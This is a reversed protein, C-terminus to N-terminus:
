NLLGEIFLINIDINIIVLTGKEAPSQAGWKVSPSRDM